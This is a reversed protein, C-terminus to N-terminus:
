YLSAGCMILNSLSCVISREASSTQAYAASTVSCAFHIATSSAAM